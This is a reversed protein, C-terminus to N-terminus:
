PMYKGIDKMQKSKGGVVGKGKKEKKPPKKTPPSKKDGAAFMGGKAYDGDGMAKEGRVGVPIQVKQAKPKIVTPRYQAQEGLVSQSPKIRPAPAEGPKYAKGVPQGAIVVKKTAGRQEPARKEARKVQQKQAQKAQQQVGVTPGGGGPLEAPMAKEACGIACSINGARGKVMQGGCGKCTTSKNLSCTPCGDPFSKAMYSRGCNTCLEPNSKYFDFAGPKENARVQEMLEPTLPGTHVNKAFRSNGRTMVNTASRWTDEGAVQARSFKPLASAKMAKKVRSPQFDGRVRKLALKLRDEKSLESPKQFQMKAKLMGPKGPDNQPGAGTKKRGKNPPYEAGAGTKAPGKNPDIRSGAGLEAPGKGGHNCAGEYPMGGQHTPGKNPSNEDDDWPTQGQKAPGKGGHAKQLLQDFINM